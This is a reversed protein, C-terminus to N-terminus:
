CALAEIDRHQQLFLEAAIGYQEIAEAARNQKQLLGAYRILREPPQPYTRLIRAFIAAAKVSDGLEVLRDFQLAYYQAAIEPEELRSHIDALAQVAEQNIPVLELVAQYEAAAERLKNKELSRRARELHRTIDQAM